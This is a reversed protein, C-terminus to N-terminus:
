DRWGNRAGIGALAIIGLLTLGTVARGIRNELPTLFELRIGQDGPPADVVIMDLADKRLRLETGGSWAHWAPDYSEQVVISQGAEVKARLLMGDSGQRTLSVPSDPGKEIVDDYARLTEVDDNFRPAGVANLRETVVVRARAPFRRPVRFIRDGRGEDYIVPLRGDFKKPYQFDKFIEQSTADAVYVADAGTAQLWLISPEANPGLNIEWQAPEVQSNLLGQESGGGVQALDHWADFWFRVSGSAYVRSEPMHEHLWESVRYEVRSQYDPWLPFMHWAYRVYGLTTAFAAAAIVLATIRPAQGPRSALWTLVTVGGLIFVLDLEPVQRLPEGSVRFNFFANGLVNLSFFVVSGATFVSWTHRPNGRALKDTAIAYAVAVALGVWISWTTGHESVYKMNAATVKLYSPVLWFATLGYGLAPIALAPVLISKDQRTIWFSWVLLPYFVALATAGYFNNSVVAACFVAAMAAAAPRRRELALWTFALAFPIFALSTMHPGEGYKALVGLRVPLLHWADARFSKLFLLSPSMLAAAAAACWAARRSKMGVRVLLYVGAIGVCYFFSTYFHYAKVPWWGTVKSLVATGYRLMPPYIYDFRTGAYWLPQWQPHPWHEILFRADAIFTSEISAWKDLYKAKFFPRILVAALLFILFLDLLIERRRAPQSPASSNPASM